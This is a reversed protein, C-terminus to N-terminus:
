ALEREEIKSSAAAAAVVRNAMRGIGEIETEVLDGAKLFSPPKEGNGVGSPTGTAIIDGPLLTCFATIFEILEAVPFVMLATSADQKPRGSVKVSIRLNEGLGLEDASVFCPGMPKFTDFSKARTWQGDRKQLDRASVDNIATYGAIVSLADARRVNRAQTGIVVGLEGEWDIQQSVAPLVIDDFPGIIASPMIGFIMPQDPVQSGSEAAHERYNRGVAIVKSPKAIPAHLHLTALEHTTTDATAAVDLLTRLGRSLHGELTLQAPGGLPERVVGADHRDLWGWGSRGGATRFRVFKM